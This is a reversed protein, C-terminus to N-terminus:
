AATVPYRRCRSSEPHPPRMVSFQGLSFRLGGGALQGSQCRHTSPTSQGSQREQSLCIAEVSQAEPGHGSPRHSDDIRAFNGDDQPCPLFVLGTVLNALM